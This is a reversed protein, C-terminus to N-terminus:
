KQNVKRKGHGFSVRGQIKHLPLQITFIEPHTSLPANLFCVFLVWKTIFSHNHCNASVCIYLLNPSLSHLHLCGWRSQDSLIPLPYPWPSDLLQSGEVPNSYQVLLCFFLMCFSYAIYRSIIVALM